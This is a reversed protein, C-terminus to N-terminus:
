AASKNLLLAVAPAAWLRGGTTDVALDCMQLQPIYCRQAMPLQDRFYRNRFYSPDYKKRYDIDRRWKRKLRVDDDTLYVVKIDILDASEKLLFPFNGEVFIIGAPQIEIPLGDPKLNGAPDHSSTAYVFDYRPTTAPRGARLNQLAKLFLPFHTAEKGLSDIGRAERQDRDTLFNDMEVTAIRQGSQAFRAQLREVIETKGAATPGAIAIVAPTGRIAVLRSVLDMFAADIESNAKRFSKYGIEQLRDFRRQRQPFTLYPRGGLCNLVAETFYETRNLFFFGRVDFYFHARVWQADYIGTVIGAFLMRALRVITPDLVIRSGESPWIQITAYFSRDNFLAELETPTTLAVSAWSGDEPWLNNLAYRFEYLEMDRVAPSVRRMRAYLAATFAQADSLVSPPNM